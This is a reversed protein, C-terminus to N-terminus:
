RRLTLKKPQPREPEAPKLATVEDEWRHGNLWTAPHPIYKGGDKTWDQSKSQQILSKMILTYLEGDVKLKDWAKQASQKAVKRPYQTWFSDFRKANLDDQEGQPSIPPIINKEKDKDKQSKQSESPKKPNNQTEKPKKPRGGLSGNKTQKDSFERERDINLKATPWIFKENGRLEPLESSAAYKLMAMFLRGIEAEGLPEIAEVFDTFVKLYKM